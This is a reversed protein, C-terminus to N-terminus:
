KGVNTEVSALAILPKTVTCCCKGLGKLDNADRHMSRGLAFADGAGEELVRRCPRALLATLEQLDLRDGGGMGTELVKLCAREVCADAKSRELDKRVEPACLV